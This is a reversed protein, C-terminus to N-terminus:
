LWNKGLHLWILMLIMQYITSLKFSRGDDDKGDDFENYPRSTKQKSSSLPAQASYFSCLEGLADQVRKVKRECEEGVYLLNLMQRVCQIKFRPDLVDVISLILSYDEWYNEFKDLM